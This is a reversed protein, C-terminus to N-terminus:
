VIQTSIIELIRKTANGDWLEPVEGTKYSEHEIDKILNMIPGVDFSVLTNTGSVVTMPRETSNRLTLCPVQRFTSEEQIGGSDTLILKAKLVLHQFEFYGLAETAILNGLGDFDSKLGFEEIRKVTRPHIPFVIKYKSNLESIIDYLKKLDEKSDTNSPRHITMLIFPHGDIKLENMISSQKIQEDFYVLTDIMTNGVFHLKGNAAEANLNEVGSSETIFYHDAIEDTLIRNIEEPMSRDNSRLGSEIHALKIGKKNAVLAAAFTSNVDGPVILLEPFFEEDMLKELRIMINGMQTSPLSPPIELFFDPQINLQQFFVDSMQHNFHQGTHVIRVDLEPHNTKALEKFRSVKIFNPRTGVVILIKKKM